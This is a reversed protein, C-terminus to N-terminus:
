VPSRFWRLVTAIMGSLSIVSAMLLLVGHKGRLVELRNPMLSRPSEGSGTTMGQAWGHFRLEIHSGVLHLSNIVGRCQTFTILEGRRLKRAQDNLEVFYLTGSQITSVRHLLSADRERFENMDFLALDKAALNNPFVSESPGLLSVELETGRATPTFQVSKPTIFDHKQEGGNSFGFHVPGLIDARFDSLSWNPSTGNLAIQYQRLPGVSRLMVNTDPDIALGSLSVSGHNNGDSIASLSMGEEGGEPATVRDVDGGKSQPAQIERLGSVGLSTLEISDHVLTQSQSSVFSVQSLSLDLDIETEKVRPSLVAIACVILAGFLLVELPRGRRIAATRSIESLRALREIEELQGDSIEGDSIAKDRIVGLRSHLLRRLQRDKSKRV